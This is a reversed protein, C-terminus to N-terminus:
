NLVLSMNVIQTGPEDVFYQLQLSTVSLDSSLTADIPVTGTANGFQQMKVAAIANGSQDCLMAIISGNVGITPVQLSVAGHVHRVITAHSIRVPVQVLGPPHDFRAQATFTMNATAQDLQWSYTGWSKSESGVTYQGPELACSALLPIAVFATVVFLWRHGLSGAVQVELSSGRERQLAM